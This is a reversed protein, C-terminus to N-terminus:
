QWTFTLPVSTGADDDFVVKLGPVNNAILGSVLDASLTIKKNAVDYTVMGSSLYDLSDVTPHTVKSVTTAGLNGAGLNVNIDLATGTILEYETTTISPAVDSVANAALLDVTSDEERVAYSWTVNVNSGALDEASYDGNPNCAGTLGFEFNNWATDPVGAKAAFAYGSDTSTVEYNASNGRLGVSVKADDKPDTAVAQVAVAAKDAVLLGLYLEANKNEEAFTASSAMAVDDNAATNASITVDVDVTGKNVVKLKASNSTWNNTSSQFFVNKGTEFTAGSHKAGETAAILGEPDMKYNFVSADAATPLTVAVVEKDVHGEFSGTGTGTESGTANGTQALVTTGMGMILTGTLVGALLKKFKQNRM